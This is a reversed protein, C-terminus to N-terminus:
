FGATGATEFSAASHRKEGTVGASTAPDTPSMDDTVVGLHFLIDEGLPDVVCFM